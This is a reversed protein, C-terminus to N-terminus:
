RCMKRYSESDGYPVHGSMGAMNWKARIRDVWPPMRWHKHPILGFHCDGGTAWEMSQKFDETFPENNLFVYPYHHHTNFQDELQRVTARLQHLESNRALVVFAAKVPHVIGINAPKLRSERFQTSAYTLVRAQDLPPPKALFLICAALGILAVIHRVLRKAPSASSMSSYILYKINPESFDVFCFLCCDAQSVSPHCM